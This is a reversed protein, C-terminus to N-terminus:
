VTPRRDSGAPQSPTLESALRRRRAAMWYMYGGIGILAVTLGIGAEIKRALQVSAQVDQLWYGIATPMPAYFVIAIADITVFKVLPVHTIGCVIYSVLRVGTVFRGFFIAKGENARFRAKVIEFREDTLAWSFPWVRRLKLGFVRGLGYATLDGLMLALFVCVAFALPDIEGSAILFGGVALPLEEPIPMGVGSIYMVFFLWAYTSWGGQLSTLWEVMCVVGRTHTVRVLAESYGAM